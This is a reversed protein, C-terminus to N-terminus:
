PYSLGAEGVPRYVHHIIFSPKKTMKKRREGVARLLRQAISGGVEARKTRSGPDARRGLQQTVHGAHEAIGAREEHASGVMGIVKRRQLLLDTPKVVHQVM